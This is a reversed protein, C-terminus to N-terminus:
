YKPDHFGNDSYIRPERSAGIYNYGFPIPDYPGSRVATPASRSSTNSQTIPAIVHAGYAVSPHHEMNSPPRPANSPLQRLPSTSMQMYERETNPTPGWTTASQAAVQVNSNSKSNLKSTNPVHSKPHWLQGEYVIWKSLCTIFNHAYIQKVWKKPLNQYGYCAGALQGYIAATTDTDDGLNVANLAGTKFSNEDCWFAWLAAELANVIYGKGRIGDNYGGYRQGKALGWTGGGELDRVPREVMYERPRFEVHAGLADGLAMGIMSGTVRNLVFNDVDSPTDQQMIELDKPTM